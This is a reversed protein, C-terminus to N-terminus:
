IPPTGTDRARAELDARIEEHTARRRWVRDAIMACVFFAAFGSVFGWPGRLTTVAIVFCAAGILPGAIWVVDRPKM